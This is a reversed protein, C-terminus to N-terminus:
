TLNGVQVNGEKRIKDDREFMYVCVSINVAVGEYVCAEGATLMAM